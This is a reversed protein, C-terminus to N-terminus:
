SYFACAWGGPYYGVGKCEGELDPDDMDPEADPLPLPLRGDAHLDDADGESRRQAPESPPQAREQPLLHLPAQSIASSAESAQLLWAAM